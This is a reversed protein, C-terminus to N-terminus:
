RGGPRRREAAHADGEVPGLHQVGEARVGDVLEVAHEVVGAPGGVDAHTRRVPLPGPGFARDPM